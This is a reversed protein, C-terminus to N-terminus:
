AKLDDNSGIRPCGVAARLRLPLLVSRRLFLFKVRCFNRANLASSLDASSMGWTNLSVNQSSFGFDVFLPLVLLLFARFWGAPFICAM